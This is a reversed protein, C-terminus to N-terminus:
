NSEIIRKFIRYKGSKESKIDDVFIIKVDANISVGKKVYDIIYNSVNDTYNDGKILYIKFDYGKQIVQFRKIRGWLDTESMNKIMKDFFLYNMTSGDPKLIDDSGIRGDIRNILKLTRGCTCIEESTIIKDGIKYNILPTLDNELETSIIENLENTYSLIMEEQIHMGGQPCEYAILGGEACGYENAVKCGFIEEIIRRDSDYLIESTVIIVKLNLSKVNIKNEKFLLALRKISSTYGRFYKPKYDEIKKYISFIENENISFIDLDLKPNLYNKIKKILTNSLRPYATFNIVKDEPRLGWWSRFRMVSARRYAEAKKSIQIKTPKGTSGSSAHSFGKELENLVFHNPNLQYEVKNTIPLNDIEKIASISNVKSFKLQYYSLKRASPLLKNFCDIQYEILKKRDWFQSELLFDCIKYPNLPYLDKSNRIRLYIKRLYKMFINNQVGSVSM